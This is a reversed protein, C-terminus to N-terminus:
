PQKKLNFMPQLRQMNIKELQHQASLALVQSSFHRAFILKDQMREHIRNLREIRQDDSMTLKGPTMVLLLEKLDTTCEEDLQKRVADIYERAEQGAMRHNILANFLGSISHQMLIVEIVRPDLRIFPSVSELSRIFAQHLNYEGGTLDSIQGLGADVLNYGKKLYDSYAQLAAIQEILYKKQTKGQRLLENWNQARAISSASILVFCIRALKNWM